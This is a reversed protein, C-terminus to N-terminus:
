VTRAQSDNGSKELAKASSDPADEVKVGYSGVRKKNLRNERGIRKLAEIAKNSIAKTDEPIGQIRLFQLAGEIVRYMRDGELSKFLNFFDDSTLKQVLEIDEPNWGRNRVMDELVMAPDRSDHFTAAKQNFAAVVDEDNVDERFSYKKLDFLEKESGRTEVYKTILTAAQDKRDFEKLVKVASNLNSPTLVDINQINANYIGDLVEKENDNFSGHFADWSSRISNENKGKVAAENSKKAVKKFEEGSFYGRKIGDIIL